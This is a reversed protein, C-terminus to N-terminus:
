SLDGLVERFCIQLGGIADICGNSSYGNAAVSAAINARSLAVSKIERGLDGSLKVELGGSSGSALTGILSTSILKEAVKDM